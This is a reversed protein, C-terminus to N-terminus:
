DCPRGAEDWLIVSQQWASVTGPPAKELYKGGPVAGSGVAWLILRDQTLHNRVTGAKSGPNLAISCLQAVNKNRLDSVAPAAQWGPDIGGAPLLSSSHCTSTACNTSATVTSHVSPLGKSQDTTTDKAFNDAKVAHCNICRAHQFAPALHYTFYPPVTFNRTTMGQSCRRGKEPFNACSAMGWRVSSLGPPLDITYNSTGAVLQINRDPAVLARAPDLFDYDNARGNRWIFLQYGANAFTSNQWAFTIRRTTWAYNNTPASMTPPDPVITFREATAWPGCVPATAAGNCAQATWEGVTAQRDAPITIPFQLDGNARVSAASASPVPSAYCSAQGSNRLCLRYRDAGAVPALTVAWTGSSAYSDSANTSSWSPVVLRPAPPPTCWGSLEFNEARSVTTGVLGELRYSGPQAANVTGVQHVLLSQWPGFAGVISYLSSGGGPAVVRLQVTYAMALPLRTETMEASTRHVIVAIKNCNGIRLPVSDLINIDNIQVASATRSAIFGTVILLALPGLSSFTM